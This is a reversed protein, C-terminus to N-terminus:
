GFLKLGQVLRVGHPYPTHPARPEGHLETAMAVHTLALLLQMLRTEEEPMADLPFAQLYEIAVPAHPLIAQYFEEIEEMSATERRERREQSTPVAWYALFPELDAFGKPLSHHVTM